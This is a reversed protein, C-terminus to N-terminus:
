SEIHSMLMYAGELVHSCAGSSIVSDELIPIVEQVALSSSTYEAIYSKGSISFQFGTLVILVKFMRSSSIYELWRLILLPLIAGTPVYACLLLMHGSLLLCRQQGMVGWVRTREEGKSPTVPM